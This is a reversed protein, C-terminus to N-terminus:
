PCQFLSRLAATHTKAHIVAATIRGKHRWCPGVSSGQCPGIYGVGGSLGSPSLSVSPSPPLSSPPRQSLYPSLRLSLSTFPQLPSSLVKRTVPFVAPFHARGSGFLKKLTRSPKFNTLSLAKPNPSIQKKTECLIIFSGLPQLFFFFWLWVSKVATVCESSLEVRGRTRKKKKKDQGEHTM